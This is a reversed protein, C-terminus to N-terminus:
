ARFPTGSVGRETSTVVPMTRVAGEILVVLAMGIDQSRCTMTAFRVKAGKQVVPCFYTKVHLTEIDVADWEWRM